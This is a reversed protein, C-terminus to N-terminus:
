RHMAPNSSPLRLVLALGLTALAALATFALAYSNTLDFIRGALIPGAAGGITGSFLVLGFIAGHAQLGFYEAVTPSMVTFFGGHAFGYVAVAAFLVGPASIFLFALLSAILPVFCLILARRGGIRDVLAGVSLRGAVSAAGMVSLLIAALAPTMGLDMGHVVIHLPITMLTSFFSFQIACIMWLTRSRRAEQFRPGAADTGNGSRASAPPNKMLLAAVLLLAVAAIGLIMLASRWDYIAILFAAISPVVIQGTATGVKVVGTMIGRRQRFQRAITSLTVVDHTAMGVGIFLGFIAFLQWPQSVQSLLAYGVGCLTGAVALVLRPGYRDNLRGGFFGLMGMVMFAFSMCSSLLTRSWGFEAEFAKFFLGYSFLLGIVTFQTLCAGLVILYRKDLHTIASFSHVSSIELTPSPRPLALPSATASNAALSGKM